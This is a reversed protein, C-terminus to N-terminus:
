TVLRAGPLSQQEQDNGAPEAKEPKCFIDMQLDVLAGFKALEIEALEDDGERQAAEHRLRAERIHRRIIAFVNPPEAPPCRRAAENRSPIEETVGDPPCCGAPAFTTKEVSM